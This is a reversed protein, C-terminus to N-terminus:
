PLDINKVTINSSNAIAVKTTTKEVKIVIAEEESKSQLIKGTLPIGILLILLLFLYPGASQRIKM